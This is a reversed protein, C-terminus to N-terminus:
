RIGAHIACQRWGVQYTRPNFYRGMFWARPTNYVHDSDDHSGFALRPNFEGKTDLGLHNAEVFEKLDKSCLNEKGEGYADKFDFRDLGFQNPM